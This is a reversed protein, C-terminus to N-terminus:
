IPCKKLLKKKKILNDEGIAIFLILGAIDTVGGVGGGVASCFLISNM